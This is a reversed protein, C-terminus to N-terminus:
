KLYGLRNILYTYTCVIILSLPILFTISWKGVFLIFIFSVTLNVLYLKLAIRKQLILFVSAAIAILVQSTRVIHDLLNLSRYFDIPKPGLKGAIMLYTAFFWGAASVLFFGALILSIIWVIIRKGSHRLCLLNM